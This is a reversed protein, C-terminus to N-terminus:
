LEKGCIECTNPGIPGFVLFRRSIYVLCLLVCQIPDNNLQILNWLLAGFRHGFIQDTFRIYKLWNIPKYVALRLISM